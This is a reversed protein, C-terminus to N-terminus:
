RRVEMYLPLPGNSESVAMLRKMIDISLHKDKLYLPKVVPRPAGEPLSPMETYAKTMNWVNSPSVLVTVQIGLSCLFAAECIQGSNYSNFKDYHFVMAALPRPVKGLGSSPLICNELMCSLTHSKGSGQSGCIFTSWPTNVNLFLRPDGREDGGLEEQENQKDSNDPFASLLGCFLGFQPFLTQSGHEKDEIVNRVRPSFIPTMRMEEKRRIDDNEVDTSNLSLLAMHLDFDPDPFTM